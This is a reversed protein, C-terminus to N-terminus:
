HTSEQTSWRHQGPVSGQWLWVGSSPSSLASIFCVPSNEHVALEVRHGWGGRCLWMICCDRTAPSQVDTQLQLVGIKQLVQFHLSMQLVEFTVDPPEQLPSPKSVPRLLILGLVQGCNRSCASALPPKWVQHVPCDAPSFNRVEGLTKSDPLIWLARRNKKWWARNGAMVAVVQYLHPM